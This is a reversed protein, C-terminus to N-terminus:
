KGITENLPDLNKMKQIAELKEKKTSVELQSIIRWTDFNTPFIMSTERAIALADKPYGYNALVAALMTMRAPDLPEVKAAAIVKDADGSQIANKQQASANLPLMGLAFGVLASVFTLLITSATVNKSQSIVKKRGIRNPTNATLNLVQVSQGWVLGMLIWGWAALAIQNISILSQAQYCVWLVFTSVLLPQNSTDAKFARSFIWVTAVLLGLYPVVLFIGGNSALDLIVNHAVNSTIEPGRRTVSTLDRYSRYYNGYSDLGLGTLPNDRFMKIGARWYDGRFTVSPKYLLFALPGKNLIGLLAAVFSILYLIGIPKAFKGLKTSRVRNLSILACGLIMILLGQQSDSKFIIILNLFLGVIPLLAQKLMGKSNLTIEFLAISYIGLFSSQFNPNGLFGIIPNYPNQWGVPDLHLLQLFGYISSLAGAILLAKFVKSHLKSSYFIATAVLITILSFYTILGTHRGSAGFLQERWNLSSFLFASILGFSFAGSLFKLTGIQKIPSFLFRINQILLGLCISGSITLVMFKPPNIPDSSLWPTVLVTMIVMCAPLYKELSKAADELNM